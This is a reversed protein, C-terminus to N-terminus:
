GFWVTIASRSKLITYQANFTLSVTYYFQQNPDKPTCTWIQLKTGDANNGGTVDLCKGGFTQVAGGTFLWQQAASNICAQITVSAGDTNSSATLCKASYM